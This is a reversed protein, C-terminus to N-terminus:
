SVREQNVCSLRIAALPMMCSGNANRPMDAAYRDGRYDIEKRKLNSYRSDQVARGSQSISGACHALTSLLQSIM